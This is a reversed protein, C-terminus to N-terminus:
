QVGPISSNQSHADPLNKQTRAVKLNSSEKLTRQTEKKKKSESILYKREVTNHQFMSSNGVLIQQSLLLMKRVHIIQMIGKKECFSSGTLSKATM